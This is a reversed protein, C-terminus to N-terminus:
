AGLRDIVLPGRVPASPGVSFATRVNTIVSDPAPGGNHHLRAVAEGKNVEDGVSKLVELGVAPDIPDEAKSRGAGLRM